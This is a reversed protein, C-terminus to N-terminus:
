KRRFSLVRRNKSIEGSSRKKGLEYTPFASTTTSKRMDLPLNTQNSLGGKCVQPNQTLRTLPGHIEFGETKLFDSFLDM